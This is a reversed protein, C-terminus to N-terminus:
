RCVVMKKTEVVGNAQLQYFYVGAQLGYADFTVQHEGPAMDDDVLIRIESGMFDYVRLVVHSRVASQWSGVPLQWRIMTLQNFPNPFNQLQMIGASSLDAVANLVSYRLLTKNNGIAYGNSTSTFFVSRLIEGTIGEGEVSWNTGGDSTHLILGRDGVAWVNYQDLCNIDNLDRHQPDPNVLKTWHIGDTTKIIAGSDGVCWGLQNNFMYVANYSGEPYVQDLHIQSNYYRFLFTDGCIWACTGEPCDTSKLDTTTPSLIHPVSGPYVSNIYGGNGVVFGWTNIAASRYSISKAPSMNSGLMSWFSGGDITKYIKWNQAAAYGETATRMAISNFSTLDPVVRVTFTNGGDHTYYYESLNACTVWGENGIFYMDSLDPTGSSSNINSSINTWQAQQAVGNFLAIMSLVLIFANKKMLVIKKLNNPKLVLLFIM